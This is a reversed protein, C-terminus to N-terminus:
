PLVAAAAASTAASAANLVWTGARLIAPSGQELSHMAHLVWPAARHLRRAPPAADCRLLLMLAQQCAHPARRCVRVATATASGVRGLGIRRGLSVLAPAGRSCPRRRPVAARPHCLGLGAPRGVGAHGADDAPGGQRGAARAGRACGSSGSCGHRWRSRQPRLPRGACRQCASGYVQLPCCLQLGRQQWSEQQHVASARPQHAPQHQQWLHGAAPLAAPLPMM